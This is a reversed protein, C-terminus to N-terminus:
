HATRPEGSRSNVGGTGDILGPAVKKATMQPLVREVLAAVFEAVRPDRPRDLFAVGEVASRVPIVLEEYDKISLADPLPDGPKKPGSYFAAERKYQASSLIEEFNATLLKPLVPLLKVASVAAAEKL